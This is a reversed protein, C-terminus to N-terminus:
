ITQILQALQVGAFAGMTFCAVNRGIKLATQTPTREKTFLPSSATWLHMISATGMRILAAMRPSFCRAKTLFYAGAGCIFPLSHWLLQSATTTTQTNDLMNEITVYTHHEDETCPRSGMVIDRATKGEANRMAQVEPTTNELVFETLVTDSNQVAQHLLTNGDELNQTGLLREVVTHDLGQLFWKIRQTNAPNAALKHLLNAGERERQQLLFEKEWPQLLQYVEGTERKLTALVTKEENSMRRDPDAWAVHLLNGDRIALLVLHPHTAHERKLRALFDIINGDHSTINKFNSATEILNVIETKHEDQALQRATRGNKNQITLGATDTLGTTFLPLLFTVMATSTPCNIAHHLLTNGEADQQTSVLREEARKLYALVLTALEVNGTKVAFTFIDDTGNGNVPFLVSPNERFLGGPTSNEKLLVRLIKLKQIAIVNGSSYYGANQQQTILHHVLTNGDDLQSQLVDIAKFSLNRDHSYSDTIFAIIEDIENNETASCAFLLKATAKIVNPENNRGEAFATRLAEKETAFRSSEVNTAANTTQTANAGNTAQTAIATAALTIIFLMKKM